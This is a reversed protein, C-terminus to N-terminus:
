KCSAVLVPSTVLVAFTQLIACGRLMQGHRKIWVGGIKTPSKEPKTWQRSASVALDVPRMVHACM